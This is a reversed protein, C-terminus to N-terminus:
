GGFFSPKRRVNKRHRRDKTRFRGLTKGKYFVVKQGGSTKKSKTAM